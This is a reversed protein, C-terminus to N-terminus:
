PRAERLHIRVVDDIERRDLVEFQTGPAFLVENEYPHSSVSSVNKGGVSEIVHQVNGEFPHTISASTFGPRTVTAGIQYGDLWRDGSELSEGRLVRGVYDPLLDLEWVVAAIRQQVAPTMKSLDFLAENMDEFGLDTYDGINEFRSHGAPGGGGHPLTVEGSEDRLLDAVLAGKNRMVDQLSELLSALTKCSGLAGVVATGVKTTWSAVKTAVQAVIVPTALGLSFVAEAAWAIISGVLQSLVDRVLDHVVQVVTSAIELGASMAGAWSSAAELRQAIDTQFLRYASIAEGALEDVDRVTRTLHRESAALQSRINAWTEAFAAVEGADGTFDNFWGKLPELHDILWGLGAGILSGIPDVAMAATDLIVSAGALSGEVWSGSEIARVLQTGSELLGAGSVATATDLPATVLANTSM